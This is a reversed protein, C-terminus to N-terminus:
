YDIKALYEKLDERDKSNMRKIRREAKAFSGRFSEPKYGLRTVADINEQRWFNSNPKDRVKKVRTVAETVWDTVTERLYNPVCPVEGINTQVGNYVVAISQFRRCNPSLMIEGNEVNFWYTRAYDGIYRPDGNPVQSRDSVGDTTDRYGDYDHPTFFPDSRQDLGKNNALYGVSDETNKEPVRYERKHYVNVTNVGINCETGSYLYMRRINFAGSPIPMRLNQPVDDYHVTEHFFTDFSLAELCKQMERVMYGKTVYRYGEEDTHLLVDTLIEDPSVFDQPSFDM